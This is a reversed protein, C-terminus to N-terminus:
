NKLDFNSLKKFTTLNSEPRFKVVKRFNDFKIRWTSIQCSKSLQWIQNLDFNSLKEFTTLNLGEFNSLKEFTTLNLGEFNSLKKFTTLNLGSKFSTIRGM